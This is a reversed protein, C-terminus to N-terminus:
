PGGDPIVQRLYRVLLEFLLSVDGQANSRVIPRDGQVAGQNVVEHEYIPLKADWVCEVGISVENLYNSAMVM